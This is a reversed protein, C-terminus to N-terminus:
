MIKYIIHNEHLNSTYKSQIANQVRKNYQSHYKMHNM